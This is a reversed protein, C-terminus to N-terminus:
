KDIRALAKGEGELIGIEDLDGDTASIGFDGTSLVAVWGVSGDAPDPDLVQAKVHVTRLLNTPNAPFPKRVYPGYIFPTGYAAQTNGRSDSYMVLQDVFSDGDPSGNSPDYGPFSGHEAYYCDIAKRVTALTAELAHASANASASSLRPVAIAAIIGIITVVMVLEVLTFAGRRNSSRIHTRHAVM